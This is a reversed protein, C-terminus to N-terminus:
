KRLTKLDIKTIFLIGIIYYIAGGLSHQFYCVLWIQMINHM